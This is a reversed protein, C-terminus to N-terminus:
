LIPSIGLAARDHVGEGDLVVCPDPVTMLLEGSGEFEYKEESFSGLLQFPFLAPSRVEEREVWLGLLV